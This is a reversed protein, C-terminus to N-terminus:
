IGKEATHVGAAGQSLLNNAACVLGWVAALNDCVGGVGGSARVKNIFKIQQPSPTGGIAKLECAIFVGRYCVLLDSVGRETATAQRVVTAGLTELFAISYELLKAETAFRTTLVKAFAELTKQEREQHTM